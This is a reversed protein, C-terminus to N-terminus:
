SMSDKRHEFETLNSEKMFAKSLQTDDWGPSFGVKRFQDGLGTAQLALRIMVHSDRNAMM